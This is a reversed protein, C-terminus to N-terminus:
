KISPLIYKDLLYKPSNWQGRNAHSVIVVSTNKQPVNIIYQGGYGLAFYIHRRSDKSIWWHYGYKGIDNGNSYPTTSTKIWNGSLVNDNNWIGNNLYLQGIKAMDRPKLSLGYGGISNGQPDTEWKIDEIGLHSFLYKKSFEKASMNTSKSIIISLLHSSSSNYLFRDVLNPEIPLTLIFETWDKSRKMRDLLPEKMGRNQWLIGSTMTLLDKITVRRILCDIDRSKYEPFFDLIKENVDKIYGKDIAIGILISIISKTISMVPHLDNKNHDNYYKEFVIYNEKLVLIANVTKLKGVVDIDINKLIEKDVKIDIDDWSKFTSTNFDLKEM